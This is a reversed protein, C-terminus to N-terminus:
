SCVEQFLDNSLMLRYRIFLYNPIFFNFQNNIACSCFVRFRKTRDEISILITALFVLEDSVVHLEAAKVIAAM